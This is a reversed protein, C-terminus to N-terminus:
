DWGNEPLPGPVGRLDGDDHLQDRDQIKRCKSCRWVSRKGGLMNIEDGYVNRVFAYRHACFLSKVWNKLWRSLARDQLLDAM